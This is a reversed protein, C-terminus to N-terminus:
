CWFSHAILAYFFMPFGKICISLHFFGVHFPQMNYLKVIQCKSFTLSHLCYFAKHNCLASPLSSHIALSCLIKLATFSHQIISYYHIYTMICKHFGMYQVVGLSFGLIFYLSHISVVYLHLNDITILTGNKQPINIIPSARCIHSCFTFLFERYKRSFKVIFRFISQFYLRNKLFYYLVQIGFSCFM